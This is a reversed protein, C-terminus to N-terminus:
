VIQYIIENIKLIVGEEVLFVLRYANDRSMKMGIVCTEECADVFDGKGLFENEELVDFIEKELLINIPNIVLWYPNEENEIEEIARSTILALGDGEQVSQEINDYILLRQGTGTDIYIKVQGEGEVYGSLKLSSITFPEVNDGTLMFNRSENMELDLIQRNINVSVYGTISPQFISYSLVGVLLLAVISIQVHKGSVM